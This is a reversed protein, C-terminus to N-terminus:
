VMIHRYETQIREQMWERMKETRSWWTENTRAKDYAAMRISDRLEADSLLAHIKEALLELHNLSYLIIDEGDVYHVDLYSTKDTLCVAGCLMTDIIRETMAGKHGSMINLALKSRRIYALMEEGEATAHRVLCSGAPEHYDEWSTGVIHLEFGQSLIFDVIMERSRYISMWYIDEYKNIDDVSIEKQNGMADELIRIRTMFDLEPAELYSEWFLVEHLMLQEPNRGCESLVQRYDKYSGVFLIDIDRKDDELEESEGGSEGPPLLLTGVSYYRQVFRDYYEDALVLTVDERVKGLNKWFFTNDFWYLLKEGRVRFFDEQYLLPLHFGVVAKHYVTYLLNIKTSQEGDTKGSDYITIREGRNGMAHAFRVAFRALVNCCADDGIIVFYDSTDRFIAEYIQPQEILKRVSCLFAERVGGYEGMVSAWLQLLGEMLGGAQFFALNRVLIYAITMQYAHYDPRYYYGDTECNVLQVSGGQVARCIFELNTAESLLENFSGIEQLFAKRIMLAYIQMDVKAVFHPMSVQEPFREGVVTVDADLERDEWFTELEAGSIVDCNVLLLYEKETNAIYWNKATANREFEDEAMEYIEYHDRKM